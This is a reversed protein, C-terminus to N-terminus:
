GIIFIPRRGIIEVLYIAAFAGLMNFLNILFVGQRANISRGSGEGFDDELLVSSYAIIAFYGTLCAFAMILIAVWSSRKYRDDEFLAQKM